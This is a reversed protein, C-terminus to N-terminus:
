MSMKSVTFGSLFCEGAAPGMAIVQKYTEVQRDAEDGTALWVSEKFALHLFMKQRTEVSRYILDNM